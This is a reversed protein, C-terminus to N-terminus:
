SVISTAELDFPNTRMAISFLYPYNIRLHNMCAIWEYILVNYARAIDKILHKYDTEPIKKFDERKELEEILHYVAWLLDTFMEHELINPNQLLRLLFKREELLFDRLDEFDKPNIKFDPKYDEFEKSKDKFDKEKWTKVGSLHEIVIDSNDDLELLYTLLNTGVESFFVRTVMYLKTLRSKKERYSLLRHIILTVLFVEIPVFAIDGIMFIFIHRIDRFIVYHIIYIVISFVVLIIGLFLQWRVSKM